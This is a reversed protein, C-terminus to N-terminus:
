GALHSRVTAAINGASIGAWERLELPTGSGPMETVALKVVRGSLPDGGDALAELVADGLGGEIWHDEVVVLLGTESIATRLTSGDIPKVSYADIVRVDIGEAGLVDAAELAEVLTVGAGVITARDSDSRRLTKSGGIPFEEAEDYLMPTKERTTRMFVIGPRDAMALTLTATSNGDAPYFVTSGHVARMMALDELAM